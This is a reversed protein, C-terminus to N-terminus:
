LGCGVSSGSRSGGETVQENDGLWYRFSADLGIVDRRRLTARLGADAAVRVAQIEAKGNTASADVANAAAPGTKGTIFVLSDGSTRTAM